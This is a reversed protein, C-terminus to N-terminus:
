RRPRATWSAPRAGPPRRSRPAPCRRADDTRTTTPQAARLEGRVARAFIRRTTETPPADLDHRLRRVCMRHWNRVQGLEGRRAHLVMLTQYVEEHYPDIDLIRHCLEIAEAYDGRRLADARLCTLAYLARTRYYERQEEVWDGTEGALFDGAYLQAARRYCAVAEARAGQSEAAHAERMASDFRDVDLWLDTANLQYGHARCVIEVPRHGPAQDLTRRVAHVAVKLSSTSPSWAGGPWLTEFLKERRVIRGRNLLLYQFLNRAKGAHWSIVPEGALSVEFAGFCRVVVATDNDRGRLGTSETDDDQM